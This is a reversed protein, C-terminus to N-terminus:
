PRERQHRSLPRREPQKSPVIGKEEVQLHLIARRVSGRPRKRLRRDAENRDPAEFVDRLDAGGQGQIAVEVILLRRTPDATGGVRLTTALRSELLARKRKVPQSYYILAPQDTLVNKQYAQQRKIRRQERAAALKAERAARARM